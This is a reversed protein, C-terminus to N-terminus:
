PHKGGPFSKLKNQEILERFEARLAEREAAIKEPDAVETPFREARRAEDGPREALLRRTERDILRREGEIRHAERDCHERIEGVTPFFVRGSEQACARLGAELIEPRFDCLALEYAKLKTATLTEGNQMRCTEALVRLWTALIVPLPKPTGTARSNLNQKESGM